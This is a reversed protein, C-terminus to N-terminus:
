CCSCGGRISGPDLATLEDCDRVWIPRKTLDALLRAFVFARQADEARGRVSTGLFVVWAPAGHTGGEPGDSAGDGDHGDHGDHVHQVIVDRALDPTM